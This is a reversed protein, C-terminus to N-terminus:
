KNVIDWWQNVEKTMQAGGNKNWNKVFTDFYDVPDQGYIIKIFTQEEMKQLLAGKATMTKTSPGSFLDPVSEPILKNNVSTGQLIPKELENERKQYVTTIQGDLVQQALNEKAYQGMTYGVLPVGNWGYKLDNVSVMNGNKDLDYDYGKAYGYKFPSNPDLFAPGIVADMYKFFADFHNFGKRFITASQVGAKSQRYVKGNPGTPFPIALYTSGKVNTVVDKLPWGGMWAPGAIIGAKGQEWLQAAKSPDDLAFDKALYGKTYWEHLKALGAKVSPQVSAYHLSGDSGTTWESIINPGYEGFVWGATAMWDHLNDKGAVALPITDNKGDKNPDGNKFADMVKELDSLTKPIPLNVNKLWDTRIWLINDFEHTWIVPIGYRKGNMTVYNWSTAHDAYLKKIRPSAYKNFADGVSALRGASVLDKLLAPENTNLVDPLKEGSSLSLKIKNNLNDGKKAVIWKYQVTVNLNKQVWRTFPNNDIADGKAYPKSGDGGSGVWTGTTITVPKNATTKGNNSSNASSGGASQKGSGCGTLLVTGILIFVICVTWSKKLGSRM